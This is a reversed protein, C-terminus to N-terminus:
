ATPASEGPLATGCNNCYQSEARNIRGCHLCVISGSIPSLFSAKRINIWWYPFRRYLEVAAWILLGVSVLFLVAQFILLAVPDRILNTFVPLFAYYLFVIVCLYVIVVLIPLADSYLPFTQPWLVRLANAYGLLISIIALYAVSTIITPVSIAVRPIVIEKTFPLWILIEKILWIASVVLILRLTLAGLLEGPSRALAPSSEQVPASAPLPEGCTVCFQNQPSNPTNCKPCNM